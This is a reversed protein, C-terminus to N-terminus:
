TDRGSDGAERRPLELAPDADSPSEPQAGPGTADGAAAGQRTRYISAEAGPHRRTQIIILVVGAVAALIAIDVNIKLGLFYFETPDLRLSELFARGTGYWLLYFGLAKGWRLNFRRELVFILLLVGIVNWIMEYLFLPQFLTGAPLGAPYAANTSEIELGWPLTTPGGYLEHNFYTGFRGFAQALLLGPALADAFSLFRIGARRCGIYAGVSGFLISGFIALGGEWVFLVKWLDAGPFFYDTPHTVVHYLRGGVIGIPVTWMAIDLVMGPTGGRKTLRTSSMWTAIVIGTLICLAYFHIRLPGIDIYSISPSPISAHVVADV